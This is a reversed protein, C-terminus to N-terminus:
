KRNLKAGRTLQNTRLKPKNSLIARTLWPQESQTSTGFEIDFLESSSLNIQPDGEGNKSVKLQDQINLKAADDIATHALELQLHAAFESAAREIEEDLGKFEALQSLDALIKSFVNHNIELKM